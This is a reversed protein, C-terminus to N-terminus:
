PIAQLWGRLDHRLEELAKQDTYIMHGSRYRRVTIDRSRVEPALRLHSLSWEFGYYITALDFYGEAVFLRMKPDRAFVDEVDPAAERVGPWTGIGGGSAYYIADSKYGLERHVYDGFAPVVSNYVKQNAADFAPQLTAGDPVWATMRGDLRGIMLGKDRLLETMFRPLSVRLDNSEIFQKSLGTFGALDAAVKEREAPDLRTGLYLANMYEGSAFKEAEQDIQELSLRQLDPPLRKHYWAVLSFTPIFNVYGLDGVRTDDQFLSSILIVGNFTLGRDVLYNALEVARYTGYSEGLIYKPSLWRNYRDLFLRVFEGMSDVDNNMGWFKAGQSPDSPRSYGTGVPDIFVLDAQDLLTNPNDDYGYPADPASGDAALHIRKPGFGVMHLWITATGPGGNFAFIVPRNAAASDDRTYYIYFIDGEVVGTTANRIPLTDATATYSLKQGNLSMQHHTVSSPAPALVPAKELVKQKADYSWFDAPTTSPPAAQGLVAPIRCIFFLVIMAVTSRM